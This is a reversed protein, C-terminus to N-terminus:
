RTNNRYAVVAPLGEGKLRDNLKVLDEKFVRDLARTTDELHQEFIGTWERQASTPQGTYAEVEERLRTIKRSLNLPADGRPDSEFRDSVARLARTVASAEIWTAPSARRELAALQQEVDALQETSRRASCEMAVLRSVTRSHELLDQDTATVRPDLRVDFPQEVTEGSATLRAIYRGPVVRGGSLRGSAPTWSGCPTRRLDWVVRNLGQRTGGRLTRVPERATDLIQIEVGSEAARGLFYTLSAGYPKNPAVYVGGGLSSADSAPTYRTATRPSFLTVPRQREGALARLPTVDDLVFFGRAHTGIVLDDDRPHVKIDMVSLRPLGLRLDTWSTGADFSVFVGLETGAYLLNPAKPDEIVIHVYGRLGKAISRWTRGYDTTVFAYPTFDDLRHQDAAVYAKGAEV